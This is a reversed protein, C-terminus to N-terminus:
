RSRYSAEYTGMGARHRPRVSPAREPTRRPAIPLFRDSTSSTIEELFQLSQPTAAAFLAGHKHLEHLLRHGERDYETMASIDVVFRRWFIDAQFAEWTAKLQEVVVGSLSGCIDVRVEDSGDRVRLLEM